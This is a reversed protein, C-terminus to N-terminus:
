PEVLLMHMCLFFLSFALFIVLDSFVAYHFQAM